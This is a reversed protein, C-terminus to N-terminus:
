ARRRPDAGEDELDPRSRRYSCRRRKSRELHGSLKDNEIPFLFCGKPRRGRGRGGRRRRRDPTALSPPSPSPLPTLPPHHLGLAIANRGNFRGAALSWMQKRAAMPGAQDIPRRARLRAKSGGGTGPRSRSARLSKPRGACVSETSGAGRGGLGARETQGGCGKKRRPCGARCMFAM